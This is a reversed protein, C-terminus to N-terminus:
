HAHSIAPAGIGSDARRFASFWAELRASCTVVVTVIPPDEAVPPASAVVVILAPLTVVTVTV